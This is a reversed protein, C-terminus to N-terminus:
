RRAARLLCPPAGLLLAGGLPDLPHEVAEGAEVTHGVLDLAVADIPGHEPGCEVGLQGVARGGDPPQALPDEDTRDRQRHPDVGVQDDDEAQDLTAQGAPEAVVRQERVAGAAREVAREGRRGLATLLRWWWSRATAPAAWRVTTALRGSASRRM